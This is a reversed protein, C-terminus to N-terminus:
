RKANAAGQQWIGSCNERLVFGNEEAWQTLEDERFVDEPCLHQQIITVLDDIQNELFLRCIEEQIVRKVNPNSLRM